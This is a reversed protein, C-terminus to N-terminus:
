WPLTYTRSLDPWRGSRWLFRRQSQGHARVVGAARYQHHLAREDADPGGILVLPAAAAHAEELAGAEVFRWGCGPRPDPETEVAARAHAALTRHAAIAKPHHEGGALRYLEALM